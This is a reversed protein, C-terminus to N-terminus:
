QRFVPDSLDRRSRRIFPFRFKGKFGFKFIIGVLHNCGAEADVLKPTHSLLKPCNVEVNCFSSPKMTLADLTCNYDNVVFGQCCLVQLRGAKGVSRLRPAWLALLVTFFPENNSIM